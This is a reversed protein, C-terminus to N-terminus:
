QKFKERVFKNGEVLDSLERLTITNRDDQTEKEERMDQQFEFLHSSSPSPSFGVHPNQISPVNSNEVSFLLPNM